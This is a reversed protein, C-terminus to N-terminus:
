SRVNINNILKFVIQIDYDLHPNQKLNDISIKDIFKNVIEIPLPYEACLKEWNIPLNDNLYQILYDDTKIGNIGREAIFNDTINNIDYESMDDVFDLKDDLSINKNYALYKYDYKIIFDFIEYECMEQVSINAYEAFTEWDITYYFREIFQSDFKPVTECVIKWNIDNLKGIRYQINHQRMFDNFYVVQIDNTTKSIFDFMNDTYQEIYSNKISDLYYYITNVLRHEQTNSKIDCLASCLIIDTDVNNISIDINTSDKKTFFM